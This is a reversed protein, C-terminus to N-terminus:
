KSGNRTNIEKAPLIEQWGHENVRMQWVRQCDLLDLPSTLSSETGIACIATLLTFYSLCFSATVWEGVLWWGRFFSVRIVERSAKSDPLITYLKHQTKSYHFIFSPLCGMAVASNLFVCEPGNIFFGLFHLLTGGIGRHLTKKHYKLLLFTSIIFKYFLQWSNSIIYSLCNCRREGKSEHYRSMGSSLCM